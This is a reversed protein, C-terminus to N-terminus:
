NESMQQQIEASVIEALEEKSPIVLQYLTSFKQDKENLSAYKVDTQGNNSCIIIGFTPNDDKPRFKDDYMHTYRDMVLEDEDTLPGFRFNILVFCRLLYNYFALDIHYHENHETPQHKQRSVLCFGNTLELMFNQIRDLVAWELEFKLNSKFPKINLFGLLYPDRILDSSEYLLDEERLGENELEKTKVSLTWQYYRSEIQQSLQQVSWHNDSAKNMYFLQAQEEEVNIILRYHSWSLLPRLTDLVPFTSFFRRMYILNSSDFTNGFDPVLQSGLGEILVKEFDIQEKGKQEEEFIRKGIQWYTVVVAFNASEYINTHSREILTKIESYFENQLSFDM